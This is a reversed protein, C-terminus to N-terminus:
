RRLLPKNEWLSRAFPHGQYNVAFNTIHMTQTILFVVSNLLSVKFENDEEADIM